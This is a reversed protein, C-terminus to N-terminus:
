ARKRKPYHRNLCAKLYEFAEHPDDVFRFLKLDEKSIVGRDVLYDFNVVKNWFESGYLVVSVKKKIKGTQLLTLVEMLEDMTGFGGPFIVLARALYVFWFKRMFFYHFELNFQESIFRNADQEFPLSINLGVSRGGAQHAGRNAAEMLGPGGGSCVTFRQSGDKEMSWETLLRSLTVCDEYYQAMECNREALKLAAIQKGTARKTGKVAARAERLSKRAERLPLTRASGFFVITSWVKGRRFRSQPEVFESLMRIIRADPSNLFELNKYAKM